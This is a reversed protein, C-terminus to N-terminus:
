LINAKSFLSAVAAIVSALRALDHILDVSVNLERLEKEHGSMCGGCGNYVSVAFALMEFREKGLSPKGMATMRLMAKKYREKVEEGQAEVMLHKFKYYTNLMGMFAAMEVAERIEADSVGYTLLERRAAEALLPFSAASALCLTATAGLQGALSPSVLLRSLNAKLDKAISTERSVFLYDIAKQIEGAVPASPTNQEM